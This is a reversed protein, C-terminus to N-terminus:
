ISILALYQDNEDETLLEFSMGLQIVDEELSCKDLYVWDFWDGKEGNYEYQYRINGPYDSPKTITGDEYLYSIDSSDVLIQGDPNLMTKCKQLFSPVHERKGALGLGNMLLLITDYKTTHNRYDQDIVNKVGSQKMVEICGPSNDLANVDFGRSQLVLSHAGAGAGLDLTKGRCEILALHEIVSMDEEDRFFVEVPMEEVEHYSTHLLLPGRSKEQYYDRIARGHLDKM